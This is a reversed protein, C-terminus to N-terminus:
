AYEVIAAVAAAVDEVEQASLRGLKKVLRRHDVARVQLADAASPKALGNRAEPDIRVHWLNGAFYDKWDTIPVILKIPLKGVADSSIVVAPRTKKIEAGITPDLNVLWIDGRCPPLVKTTLSSV